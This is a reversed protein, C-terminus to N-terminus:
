FVDVFEKTSREELLPAEAHALGLSEELLSFITALSKSVLDYLASSSGGQEREKM